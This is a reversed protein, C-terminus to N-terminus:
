LFQRIAIPSQYTYAPNSPTSLSNFIENIAFGADYIPQSPPQRDMFQENDDSDAAQAITTTFCKEDM